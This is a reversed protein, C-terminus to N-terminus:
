FIAKVTFFANKLSFIPRSFTLQFQGHLMCTADFLMALLNGLLHVYYVHRHSIKKCIQFSAHYPLSKETKVVQWSKHKVSATLM